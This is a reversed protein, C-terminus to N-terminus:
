STPARPPWCHRGCDPAADQQPPLAPKAVDRIVEHRLVRYVTSWSAAEYGWRCLVWYYALPTDRFSAPMEALGALRPWNHREFIAWNRAIMECAARLSNNAYHARFLMRLGHDRQERRFESLATPAGQRRTIGLCELLPKCTDM